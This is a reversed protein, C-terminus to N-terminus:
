AHVKRALPDNEGTTGTEQPRCDTTHKAGATNGIILQDHRPAVGAVEGDFRGDGAEVVCGPGVDHNM